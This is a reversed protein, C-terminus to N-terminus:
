KKSYPMNYTVPMVISSDVSVSTGSFIGVGNDINSFVYCPESFFDNKKYVQIYNSRAYKYYEENISSLEFNIKRMTFKVGHPPYAMDFLYGVPILVVLEYTLGDFSDDAIYIKDPMAEEEELDPIVSVQSEPPRKFYVANLDHCFFPVIYKVTSTGSYGSIGPREYLSGFRTISFKYCNRIGPPDRFKIKCEITKYQYKGSMTYVTNTDVSILPVPNPITTSSTVEPFDPASVKISYTHNLGPSFQNLSFYNKTLYRYGRGNMFKYTEQYVLDEIYVDDEFLKVVANKIVLDTDTLPPYPQSRSIRMQIPEGENLICNVTIMPGNDPIKIQLIEECSYLLLILFSSTLILTLKNQNNFFHFMKHQNLAIM